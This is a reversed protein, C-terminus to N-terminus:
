RDIPLTFVIREFPLRLQGPEPRFPLPPKRPLKARAGRLEEMWPAGYLLERRPDYIPMLIVNGNKEYRAM